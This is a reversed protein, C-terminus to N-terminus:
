IRLRLIMTMKHPPDNQQILSEKVELQRQGPYNEPLKRLFCSSSVAEARSEDRCKSVRTWPLGVGELLVRVGKLSDGCM